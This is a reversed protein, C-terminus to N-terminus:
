LVSPRCCMCVVPSNDM